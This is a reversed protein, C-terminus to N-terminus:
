LQSVHATNANISWFGLVIPLWHLSKNLTYEKTYDM